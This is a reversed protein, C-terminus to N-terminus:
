RELRFNDFIATTASGSPVFSGSDIEIKVATNAFQRNVSRRVVWNTGDSSTEFVIQDGTPNHRFRWFRHQTANYPVSTSSSSGGSVIYQFYLVADEVVFRYRNNYDLGLAFVTDNGASVTQIVEVSTRANTFDWTSATVYGSYGLVSQPTTIRLQQNTETVQVSSNFRNDHLTGINWKTTDRVNDNFDDSMLVGSPSGSSSGIAAEIADQNVGIDTGDSAKGKYTTGNALRYNGSARDVFGVNGWTSAVFTEASACATNPTACPNPYRSVLSTDSSVQTPDPNTPEDSTNVLLTKRYSTPTLPGFNNTLTPTGEDSAQIGYSGREVINDQFTLNPNVDSPDYAGLTKSSGEATVHIIKVYSAGGQILFIKGYSEIGWAPGIDYFLTNYIKVHNVAIPEPSQADPRERALINLANPAHRVINNSFTVHESVCWYCGGEQNSSKILIAFDQAQVWTNEFINGDVLVRRANKLEFLNKVTVGAVGRWSLRKTLLNRKIEIDAPVMGTIAPDQGGFMINEGSAELFNNSIKFPGAGNSGWIAQSDASDHYNSVHSEIVAMHIGQLTIGRRYPGVSVDNGHAYCRDIIMFSPMSATSTEGGTGLQITTDSSVANGNMGVDLGVLRYHHAGSEAAIAPSNTVQSRLKPMQSTHATNTGDVRTGPPISGNADFATSSSRIIIWSTSSGKNRLKFGGDPALYTGSPDLTITDGPVSVDITAQLNGGSPVFRTTGTNTPYTTNVTQQPLVPDDSTPPPSSNSELKFNDFIATTTAGSAVFSGSDIEVKLATNAFQRAVTRQATWGNGDSSTEFVIQDGTPNHRFRWFRHQTANYSVNTSSTAGGGVKYQFYLVGDEVVFRYRNNADLGLAFVTDNGASVTQLVEVSTRANTFDWTSATVYGSYGLVGQPTTIKLQQSTEAVQVSSNFRSDHLTAITWKSTDRVNDNFDDTFGATQGHGRGVHFTLLSLFILTLLFSIRKM